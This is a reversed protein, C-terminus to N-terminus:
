YSSPIRFVCYVLYQRYKKGDRQWEQLFVRGRTANALSVLKAFEPYLTAAPREAEITSFYEIYEANRTVAAVVGFQIEPPATTKDATALKFELIRQVDADLTQATSTDWIRKTEIAVQVSERFNLALLDLRTSTSDGSHGEGYLYFGEDGFARALALSVNREAIENDRNTPWYQDLAEALIYGGRRVIRVIEDQKVNGRKRRGLQRSGCRAAFSRANAAHKQKNCAV